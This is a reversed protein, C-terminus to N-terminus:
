EWTDGWTDRWVNETAKQKEYRDAVRNAAETGLMKYIEFWQDNEPCHEIGFDDEGYHRMHGHFSKDVVTFLSHVHEDTLCSLNAKIGEAIEKAARVDESLAFFTEAVLADGLVKVTRKALEDIFIRLDSQMDILRALEQVTDEAAKKTRIYRKEKM